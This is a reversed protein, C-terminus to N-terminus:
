LDGLASFISGGHGSNVGIYRALPSTVVPNGAEMVAAHARLPDIVASAERVGRTHLEDALARAIAAPVALAIDGRLEVLPAIVRKWGILGRSVIIETRHKGSMLAVDTRRDLRVPGVRASRSVPDILGASRDVRAVLAAGAGLGRLEIVSGPSSTM